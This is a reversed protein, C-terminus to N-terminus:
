PIPHQEDHYNSSLIFKNQQRLVFDRSSVALRRWIIPNVPQPVAKYIVTTQQSQHMEIQSSNRHVMTEEPMWQNKAHWQNQHKRITPIWAEPIEAGYDRNINNSNIRIHIAEKVKRTYWHCDRDILKIENWLLKQRTGNAHKLVASTSHMRTM